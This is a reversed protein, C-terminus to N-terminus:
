PSAIVTEEGADSSPPSYEKSAVYELKKVLESWPKYEDVQNVMPDEREHTVVDIVFKLLAGSGSMKISVYIGKEDVVTSFVNNLRSQELCECDIFCCM